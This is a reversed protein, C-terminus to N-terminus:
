FKLFPTRSEEFFAFWIEPSNSILHYINSDDTYALGTISHKWLSRELLQKVFRRDIGQVIDILAEIWLIDLFGKDPSQGCATCLETIECRQHHFSSAHNAGAGPM